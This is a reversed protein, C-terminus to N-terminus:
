QLEMKLEVRRNKTKNALTTNPVLPKNDGYGNTNLRAADIGKKVFYAKVANARNESLTKNKEPKGTNDTHGDITLSYEPYEKLIAVVEDLKKFSITRIIDKGVEFQIAKAAFELKKSVAAEVKPCGFNEKIGPRDICKDEEDNVGDGDTDPIPCGQYKAIGPVDICKDEEDNIGDKDTDPIPCGQYKAIGPVDICKDEEDNVGDKDTDPIPCGQYKAIGPVDVCKDDADLIGDGDRDKPAELEKVPEPTVPAEEKIEVEKVKKKRYPIGAHLGVYLNASKIKGLNLASSIIDDSGFYLLGLRLGLGARVKNSLNNYSIPLGADFFVSEFRPTVVVEMPSTTGLVKKGILGATILGNVYLHKKIKYDFYATVMTPAAVSFAKNDKTSAVGPITRFYSGLDYLDINATDVQNAVKPGNTNITFNNVDASSKYRVKGLDQIAFGIKYKYKNDVKSTSLPNEEDFDRHEYVAGIDIGLGSGPGSILADGLDPNGNNFLDRNYTQSTSLSGNFEVKSTSTDLLKVSFNDARFRGAGLGNYRKIVGGVKLFHHGKNILERGYGLGIEGFAHVNINAVGSTFTSGNPLKLGRIGDDILNFYDTNIGAGSASVRFRTLISFGSKKGVQFMVSPMKLDASYNFGINSTKSSRIFNIDEGTRLANTVYSFKKVYGYNQNAFANANFFQLDMLLKNDAINGPNMYIGNIGAYNSNSLGYLRQANAKQAYIAVFALSLFLTKKM